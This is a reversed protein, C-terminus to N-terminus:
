RQKPKLLYVKEILFSTIGRRQLSSMDELISEKQLLTIDYRGNFLAEIEETFVAYPPGEMEQQDYEFANLFISTQQDSIEILKKAYEERRNRPLAILGARDHILDFPDFLEPHLDFFDGQWIEIEDSRYLTFSSVTETAAQRGSERFFQEVAKKAVENGVVHCGRDHLWLLDLSKGCLPVFVRCTSNLGFLPWFKKLPPYVRDLHWGTRGEQWRKEWFSTEM